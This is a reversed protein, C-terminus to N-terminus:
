PAPAPPSPATTTTTSLPAPLPATRQDAPVGFGRRVEAWVADPQANPQQESISVVLQTVRHRRADEIAASIFGYSGEGLARAPVWMGIALRTGAADILKTQNHVFLAFEPEGPGAGVETQLADLAQMSALDDWDDTGARVDGDRRDPSLLLRTSVDPRKHDIELILDELFSKMSDRRFQQVEATERPPLPHGFRSEFQLQADGDFPFYDGAEVVPQMPFSPQDLVVGDIDYAMFRDLTEIIADRYAASNIAPVPAVVGFRSVAQWEPHETLITAASHGADNRFTGGILPDLVVVLGLDHALDLTVRLKADNALDREAAAIYVTNVGQSRAHALHERILAPDIDPAADFVDLTIAREEAPEPPAPRGSPLRQPIVSTTTSGAASAPPVSGGRATGPV